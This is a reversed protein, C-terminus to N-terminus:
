WKEGFNQMFSFYFKCAAVLAAISVHEIKTHAFREEGPGFGITPIKYLGKTAVGNTSFRWFSTKAEKQFVSEFTRKAITVLPSQEEMIWCPFYHRLRCTFKQYTKVESEPVFVKAGRKEVTPLSTIEKLVSKETEQPVLRRDIHISCLHPVTNLSNAVSHIDTVTLTSKGFFEDEPLSNHLVNLEQIIDMMLLIANIGRAPEAGHAPLGQVEVKIGMRGRQGCAITLNTPETLLVAQPRFLKNNLIFQWALGEYDEESISAVFYVTLEKPFGHAILFKVAMLAAALGGKQDCAGRGYIKGQFIDGGLPDFKWLRKRDIDVTDVHADIALVKRGSGIKGILNGMDDLFVDEFGMALMKEKLFQIIAGEQGTISKIRILEQTLSILENKRQGTLKLAANM